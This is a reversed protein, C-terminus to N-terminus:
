KCSSAAPGVYDYRNRYRCKNTGDAGKRRKRAKTLGQMDGLRSLVPAKYYRKKNHTVM